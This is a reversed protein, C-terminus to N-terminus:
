TSTWGVGDPSPRRSGPDGSRGPGGVHLVAAAGVPRAPGGARAAPRRREHRPRLRLLDRGAQPRGRPGVRLLLRAGGDHDPRRLPVPRGTGRRRRGRQAAGARRAGAADPAAREGRRRRLARRHRPARRHLEEDRRRRDRPRGPHRHGRRQDRGAAVRRRQHAHADGRRPRPGDRRLHGPGAIRGVPEGGGGPRRAPGAGRRLAVGRETVGVGRAGRAGDARPLERVPRRPRQYGPRRLAGAAPSRQPDPARAARLQEGGTSLVDQWRAPQEAIERRM